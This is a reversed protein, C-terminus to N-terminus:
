VVSKRDSFSQNGGGGNGKFPNFRITEVGQISRKLREEVLKLYQEVDKRFLHLEDHGERIHVITDELSRANKGSLLRKLKIELRINWLLLVVVVVILTYVLIEINISLLKTM